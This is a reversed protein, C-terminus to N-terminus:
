KIRVNRNEFLHMGDSPGGQIIGNSISTEGFWDTEITKNEVRLKDFLEEDDYIYSFIAPMVDQILNIDYKTASDKEPWHIALFTGFRDQMDLQDLDKEQYDNMNVGGNTIYPGHDGMLVIIANPDHSKIADINRKMELNAPGLNAFFRDKEGGDFDRYFSTHGPRDDHTYYFIPDKSEYALTENKKDLFEDYEVDSFSADNRFEGELIANIIIRSPSISQEPKPFTDSYRSVNGQFMYDSQLVIRSEYKSKDLFYMSTNNGAVKHRENVTGDVMTTTQLVHAMSVLSTYGISYTGDYIAFGEDLLYNM